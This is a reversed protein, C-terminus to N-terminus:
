LEPLGLARKSLINLQIENSGGAICNTPADLWKYAAAGDAELHDFGGMAMLVRTKRLELETALVKLDARSLRRLDAPDNITQLLPITM